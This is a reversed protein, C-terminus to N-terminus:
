TPLGADPTFGIMPADKKYASCFLYHDKILPNDADPYSIRKQFFAGDNSPLAESIMRPDLFGKIYGTSQIEIPRIRVNSGDLYTSRSFAPTILISFGDTQVTTGNDRCYFTRLVNSSINSGISTFTTGSVQYSVVGHVQTDSINALGGESNPRFIKGSFVSLADNPHQGYAYSMRLFGIDLDYMIDYRDPASTSNASYAGQFVSPVAPAANANPLWSNLTTLNTSPNTSPATFDGAGYTLNTTDTFGMAFTNTTSHNFIVMPRFDGVAGPNNLATNSVQKLHTAANSATGGFVEYIWNNTSTSAM